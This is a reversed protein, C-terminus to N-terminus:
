KKKSSKMSRLLKAESNVNFIQKLVNIVFELKSKVPGTALVTDISQLLRILAVAILAISEWNKTLLAIVSMIGTLSM